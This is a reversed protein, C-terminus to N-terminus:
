VQGKFIMNLNKLFDSDILLINALSKCFKEKGLIYTSQKFDEAQTM